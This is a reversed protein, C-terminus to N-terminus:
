PQTRSVLGWLSTSRTLHDVEEEWRDDREKEKQRMREARKQAIVASGLAWDEEGGNDSSWDDLGM